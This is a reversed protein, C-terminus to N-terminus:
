PAPSRPARGARDPDPAEIVSPIGGKSQDARPRFPEVDLRAIGSGKSVVPIQGPAKDGSGVLIAACAIEAAGFVPPDVDLGLESGVGGIFVGDAISPLLAGLVGQQM